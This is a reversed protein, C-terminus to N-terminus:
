AAERQNSASAVGTQGVDKTVSNTTAPAKSRLYFPRVNDKVPVLAADTSRETLLLGSSVTPAEAQGEELDFFDQPKGLREWCKAFIEPNIPGRPGDAGINNYAVVSVDFDLAQAYAVIKEVSFNDLQGNLIQSVRGKTLNLRDALERQSIDEDLMKRELQM